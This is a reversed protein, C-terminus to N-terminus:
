CLSESIYSNAFQLDYVSNVNGMYNTHGENFAYAKVCLYLKSSEKKIYFRLKALTYKYTSTQATGMADWGDREDHAFEGMLPSSTLELLKIESGNLTWTGGSPSFSRMDTWIGIMNGIWFQTIASVNVSVGSVASFSVTALKGTREYMNHPACSVGLMESVMAHAIADQGEQVPHKLDSALYPYYHLVRVTSTMVIANNASSYAPIVRENIRERDPTYQCYGSPAIWVVANPFETKARTVWAQVATAIDGTSYTNDNFGGCVIIDTVTDHESVGSIADTLLTDFTKGDNANLFGIGDYYYVNTEITDGTVEEYFAKFKTPWPIFTGDVTWGNAYSDGFLIMRKGRMLAAVNTQLTSVDGQLNGIDNTIAPIETNDINDVANELDVIRQMIDPLIANYDYVEKWYDTNTINVGAPVPQVSIYGVNNNDTVLSWAPYQKTIDWLGEFRITNLIQFDSWDKHMKRIEGIIWDLNYENFDTAPYKEIFM